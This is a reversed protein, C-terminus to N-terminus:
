RNEVINRVLKAYKAGWADMAFHTRAYAAAELGVRRCLGPIEVCKRVQTAWVKPDDLSLVWGTKDHEIIEPMGGAPSVIAPVGLYMAEQVANPVGEDRSPMVMLNSSAILKHVDGRWGLFEISIGMGRSEIVSRMSELYKEDFVGGILLLKIPRELGDMRLRTLADLTFQQNKRDCITGVQVITFPRDDVSGVDAAVSKIVSDLSSFDIGPLIAHFKHRYKNALFRGFIADPAETYQFVVLQAAWLGFRHLYRVVGKSRLEYDVDWVLPRGSLLAGMAAFAVGKSSRFWVVDGNNRQICRLVSWHQRVMAMMVRCRFVVGTGFLGQQQLALLGSLPFQAAAHGQAKAADSLESDPHAVICVSVHNRRLASALALLRKPGGTIRGPKIMFAILKM